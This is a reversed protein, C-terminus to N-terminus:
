KYTVDIKIKGKSGIGASINVGEIPSSFHAGAQEDMVITMKDVGNEKGSKILEAAAQAQATAAAAPKTVEFIQKAIWFFPNSGIIKQATDIARKIGDRTTLDFEQNM